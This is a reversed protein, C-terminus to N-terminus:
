TQDVNGNQSVGLNESTDSKPPHRCNSAQRCNSASSYVHISIACCTPMRSLGDSDLDSPRYIWQIMRTPRM